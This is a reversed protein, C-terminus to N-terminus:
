EETSGRPPYGFDPGLNNQFQQRGFNKLDIKGPLGKAKGKKDFRPLYNKLKAEKEKGSPARYFSPLFLLDYNKLEFSIDPRTEVIELRLTAM